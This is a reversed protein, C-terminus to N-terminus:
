PELSLAPVRSLGRATTRRGGRVTVAGGASGKPATSLRLPTLVAAIAATTVITSDAHASVVASDLVVVVVSGGLVVVVVSGGVVAVDDVLVVCGVVEDVFVGEGDVVTTAAPGPDSEAILRITSSVM